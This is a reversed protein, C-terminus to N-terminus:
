DAEVDNQHIYGNVYDKENIRSIYYYIDSDNLGQTAHKAKVENTSILTTVVNSAKDAKQYVKIEAKKLKLPKADDVDKIYKIRRWNKHFALIIEVTTNFCYEANEKLIKKDFKRFEQNIIWTEKNEDYYVEPTFRWINWFDEPRVGKSLLDLDIKNHDLVIFDRPEKVNTEIYETNKAYSPASSFAAALSVNTYRKIPEISYKCEIKEYIAKRCNVLCAEYQKENLNKEAQKLIEKEEGEDLLEVFSINNFPKKFYELSLEEFFDGVTYVFHSCEEINPILGYHKINVRQKNLERIRSRLPLEKKIQTEISKIYQEFTMNSKIEANITEALALLYFEVSDQLLIIGIGINTTNDVLFCDKALEYSYKAFMIKRIVSEEM